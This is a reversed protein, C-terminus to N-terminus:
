AWAVRRARQASGHCPRQALRPASACPSVRSVKVDPYMRPCLARFSWYGTLVVCFTKRQISMENRKEYDASIATIGFLGEQVRLM